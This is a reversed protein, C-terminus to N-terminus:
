RSGQRLPISEEGIFVDSQVPKDPAVGPYLNGQESEHIHKLGERRFFHGAVFAAILFVILTLYTVSSMREFPTFISVNQTHNELSAKLIVTIPVVTFLVILGKYIAVGIDVLSNGFAERAKPNYESIKM